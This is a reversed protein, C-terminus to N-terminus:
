SLSVAVRLEEDIKAALMIAARRSCVLELLKVSKEFFHKRDEEEFEDEFDISCKGGYYDQFNGTPTIPMEAIEQMLMTPDWDTTSSQAATYHEHILECMLEDMPDLEEKGDHCEDDEHGEVHGTNKELVESFFEVRAESNNEFNARCYWYAITLLARMAKPRGDALKGLRRIVKMAGCVRLTYSTTAGLLDIQKVMMFITLDPNCALM